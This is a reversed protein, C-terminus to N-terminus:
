PYPRAQSVYIGNDSGITVTLLPFGPVYVWNYLWATIPSGACLAFSGHTVCRMVATHHPGQLGNSVFRKHLLCASSTAGERLVGAPM